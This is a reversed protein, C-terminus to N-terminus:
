GRGVEEKPTDRIKCFDDRITLLGHGYLKKM